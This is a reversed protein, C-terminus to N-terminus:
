SMRTEKASDLFKRWAEDFAKERDVTEFRPETGDLSFEPAWGKPIQALARVIREIQSMSPGMVHRRSAGALVWNIPTVMKRDIQKRELSIQGSAYISVLCFRPSLPFVFQMGPSIINGVSAQNSAVQAIGCDTLIFQEEDLAAELIIWRSHVIRDFVIPMAEFFLGFAAQRGPKLEATGFIFSAREAARPPHLDQGEFFRRAADQEGFHHKLFPALAEYAGKLEDLAQPTRLLSTAMYWSLMSREFTDIDGGGCLRLVIPLAESEFVALAHEIDFRKQGNDDIFAYFEKEFAVGEKGTSFFKAGTRDYVALKGNSGLFREQYSRTVYHHNKPGTTRGLAKALMKSIRDVRPDTEVIGDNM